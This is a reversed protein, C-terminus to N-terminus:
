VMNYFDLINAGVRVGLANWYSPIENMFYIPSYLLLDKFFITSKSIFIFKLLNIYCIM